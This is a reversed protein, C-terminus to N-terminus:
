SLPARRGKLTTGRGRLRAIEEGSPDLPHLPRGDVEVWAHAHLGAGGEPRVGIVVDARPARAAIALSRSLCSGRGDLESVARGLEELTNRPPMLRGIQRMMAHATVPPFLRILVRATLNLM